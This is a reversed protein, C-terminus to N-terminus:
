GTELETETGSPQAFYAGRDGLGHDSEALSMSALRSVQILCHVATTCGQCGPAPVLTRRWRAHAATTATGMANRATNKTHGSHVTSARPRAPVPVPAAHATSVPGPHGVGNAVGNTSAPKPVSPETASPTGAAHASYRSRHRPCTAALAITATGNTNGVTTTAAANPASKARLPRSPKAPRSWDTVAM